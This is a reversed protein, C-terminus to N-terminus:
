FCCVCHLIQTPELEEDQSQRAKAPEIPVPLELKKIVPSGSVQPPLNVAMPTPSLQLSSSKPRARILSASQVIPPATLTPQFTPSPTDNVSPSDNSSKSRYSESSKSRAHSSVLLVVRREDNESSDSADEDSMEGIETSPRAPIPAPSRSVLGAAVNRASLKLLLEAADTKNHGDGSREDGSSLPSSSGEGPSEVTIESRYLDGNPPPCIPGWSQDGRTPRVLPSPKVSQQVATEPAQLTLDGALPTTVPTPLAKIPSRSKRMPPPQVATILPSPEHILPLPEQSPRRASRNSNTNRFAALIEQPTRRTTRVSNIIQM